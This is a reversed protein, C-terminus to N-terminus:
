DVKAVLESEFVCVKQAGRCYEEFCVLDESRVMVASYGKLLFSAASARAMVSKTHIPQPVATAECTLLIRFLISM